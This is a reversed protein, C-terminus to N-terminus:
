GRLAVAIAGMLGADHIFRAEVLDPPFPVFRRMHDRLRPLILDKSAMLGGGVAVREPDLAITLNTLHYAIETVTAEVFARAAVDERARAFVREATYPQGFWASARAGIAGGGAYEELPAHGRATGVEEHLTRPNYAIEGAAGHAGSVIRGGVVLAAAIGTGLNAYIATDSGALAGWRLEALTAAKVDNDIGISVGPFAERLLRPLTLHEWGPVNPAMLVGDDRTIGMSAVGVGRLTGNQHASTETVLQRGADIARAIAQEAGNAADTPLRLSQMVAGDMTATAVIMKTGGLDIGLVFGGPEKSM